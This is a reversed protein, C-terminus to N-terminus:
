ILISSLRSSHRTKENETTMDIYSCQTVPNQENPNSSREKPFRTRQTRIRCGFYDKMTKLYIPTTHFEWSITSKTM